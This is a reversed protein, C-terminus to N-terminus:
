FVPQYSFFPPIVIISSKKKYHTTKPMVEHRLFVDSPNEHFLALCWDTFNAETPNLLTKANHKYLGELRVMAFEGDTAEEECSAGHIIVSTVFLVLHFWMIM